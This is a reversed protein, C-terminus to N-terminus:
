RFLPKSSVSNQADAFSSFDTRSLVVTPLLIPLDSLRPSKFAMENPTEAKRHKMIQSWVTLPEHTLAM